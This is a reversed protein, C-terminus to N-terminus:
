LDKSLGQNIGNLGEGVLPSSPESLYHQLLRVVGGGCTPSTPLPTLVTLQEREYGM